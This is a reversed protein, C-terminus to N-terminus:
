SGQREVFRVGAILALQWVKSCLRRSSGDPMLTLLFYQPLVAEKFLELRGGSRSIDRVTCPLLFSGDKQYITGAANLTERSDRRRDRGTASGEPQDGPEAEPDKPLIYTTTQNCKACLYTHKGLQSAVPLPTVVALLMDSGCKPCAAAAEATASELMPVNQAVPM